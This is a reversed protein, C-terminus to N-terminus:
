AYIGQILASLSHNEEPTLRLKKTDHLPNNKFFEIAKRYKLALPPHQSRTCKLCALSRENENWHAEEEKIPTHCHHCEKFSPLFGLHNALQVLAVEILFPSAEKQNLTELTTKLLSFIEPHPDNALINKQIVELFHHMKFIADLNDKVYLYSKQCQVSQLYPHNKGEYLTGQILNMLELHSSRKSGKNRVGKAIVDRRFGEDDLISIILDTETFIRKQIVIGTINQIRSM